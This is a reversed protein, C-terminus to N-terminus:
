AKVDNDSNVIGNHKLIMSIMQKMADNVRKSAISYDEATATIQLEIKSIGDEKGRPHSKIYVFPNKKVADEIFPALESEIIKSVLVRKDIYTFKIIKKIMVVVSKNFIARLESPVGPLCIIRTGNELYVGPATGIPNILPIAGKPLTAM